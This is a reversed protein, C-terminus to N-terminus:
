CDSFTSRACGTKTSLSAVVGTKAGPNDGEGLGAPFGVVLLLHLRPSEPHQIKEKGSTCAAGSDRLRSGM